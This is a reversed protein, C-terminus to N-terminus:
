INVSLVKLYLLSPLLVESHLVDEHHCQWLSYAFFFFSVNKKVNITLLSISLSQFSHSLHSLTKLNLGAWNSYIKSFVNMIADQLHLFGGSVTSSLFVVSCNACFKLRFFIQWPVAAQGPLFASCHFHNDERFSDRKPCFGRRRFFCFCFM